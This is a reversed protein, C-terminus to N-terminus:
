DYEADTNNHLLTIGLEKLKRRFGSTTNLTHVFSGDDKEYSIIGGDRLATVHVPDEAKTLILRSVTVHRGVLDFVTLHSMGSGSVYRGPCGHIPKWSYRSLITNFDPIDTYQM